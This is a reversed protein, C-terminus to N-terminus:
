RNKSNFISVSVVAQSIIRSGLHVGAFLAERIKRDEQSHLTDVKMLARHLKPNYETGRSPWILDYGFDKLLDSLLRAGVSEDAGGGAQESRRITSFIKAIEKFIPWEVKARITELSLTEITSALNDQAIGIEELRLSNTELEKELTRSIREEFSRELVPNIRSAIKDSLSDVISEIAEVIESEFRSEEGPVESKQDEISLNPLGNAQEGNTAESQMEMCLAWHRSLVPAILVDPFKLRDQSDNSFGSFLPRSIPATAYM